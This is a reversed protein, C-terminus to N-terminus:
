GSRAERRNGALTGIVLIAIAVLMVLTAIVHVQPPIEVRSSDFIERPFTSVDGAVFSTIIYDDISLALSLLFAAVVGPVIMPLTIKVFTRLPPSGLDAAADELSWDLGRTRAKVTLAVFSLCFMTHAIVITWFGRDVGQNFFLTFLSAGMVIEPTTLPLVLLLNIAAGGRMRYRSIALAVLAGLATALTCAVFAVRLSEKFADTYDGAPFPNKWNDLTFGSWSTNFRGEPANFTFVAITVLPVFLYIMGLATAVYLLWTGLPRRGLRRSM